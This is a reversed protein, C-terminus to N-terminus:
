LCLAMAKLFENNAEPPQVAIRFHSPTLGEFNSADRILIGHQTALVEKLHAATGEKLCALLIHTDSPYVEVQGTQTLQEAVRERETLLLELPISYDQEHEMLYFAAEQALSNISWPMQLQRLRALLEARGTAYGIRLGPVAFRKTLSQLLLINPLGVAESPTILPKRTFCAYSADVVFLTHKRATVADLLVERALVTGTPNNPNCLWCLQADDPLDDIRSIYRVTHGHMRCADAYESFTPGLVVSKQGRFAHAALYIAETAGSTALVSSPELGLAQALRQELRGASPEPYHAVVDMRRALHAYLGDHRFHDYVNSSFNLRIHEYQYLDDGHGHHM